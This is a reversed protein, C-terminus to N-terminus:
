NVPKTRIATGPATGGLGAGLDETKREVPKPKVDIVPAPAQLTKAEVPAAPPAEPAPAISESYVLETFSNKTQPDIANIPSLGAPQEM